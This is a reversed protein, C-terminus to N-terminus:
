LGRSLGLKQFKCMVSLDRDLDDVSIEYYITYRGNQYATCSRYIFLASRVRSAIALDHLDYPEWETVHALGHWYM